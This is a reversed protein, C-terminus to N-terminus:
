LGHQRYELLEAVLVTREGTLWPEDCQDAVSMALALTEIWWWTGVLADAVANTRQARVVTAMWVVPTMARAWVSSASV